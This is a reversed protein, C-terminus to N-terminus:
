ELGMNGGRRRDAGMLFRDDVGLGGDAARVPDAQSRRRFAPWFFVYDIVPGVVAFYAVYLLDPLTLM